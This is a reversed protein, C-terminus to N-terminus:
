DVARVAPHVLGMAIVGASIAGGLVFVPAAGLRDAAIGALGYGIPALATSVLMDISAVRGLRSAPVFEQLTNIWALGLSNYSAGQILFALSIISAPLPLGAVLLMLSALIWAGYVLLGRRWLRKFHGLWLAASISGLASLSTLLAYLGVQTGFREKVLLPLVAEDPGSLFITSVCAVAITVWLWPSQLVTSIWTQLDHLASTREKSISAGQVPKSPLVVLCAASIVFSAGDLAFALPTGGLAIIAAGIGPGFIQAVQLSISRLSNASPLYETPVLDPIAATYAPYFFAEVLGFIASMTCLQWLELRQTFALLAIIGVVMGRTLDSALMLRVRPFRDVAVGGILLLLLMPTTSCILVIGMATASGTKELVWWAPAITYLSDGLRSITQGSWRLAFSRRSLARFVSM